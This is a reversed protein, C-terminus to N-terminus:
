RRAVGIPRGSRDFFHFFTIILFKLAQSMASIIWVLGHNIQNTLFVTKTHTLQGQTLRSWRRNFLIIIRKLYVCVCPVCTSRQRSISKVLFLNLIDSLKAMRFSDRVVLMHEIAGSTFVRKIKVKWGVDLLSNQLGYPLAYAIYFNAM